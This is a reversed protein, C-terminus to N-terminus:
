NVLGGKGSVNSENTTYTVLVGGADFTASFTQSHVDVRSQVINVVPVFNQARNSAKTYIWICLTQGDATATSSMPAGLAAEVQARTTKGREFTAVKAADIPEGVSACGALLVSLLVILNLKRM